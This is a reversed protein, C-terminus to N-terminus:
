SGAIIIDANLDAAQGVIYVSFVVSETTDGSTVSIHVQFAGTGDDDGSGTERLVYGGAESKYSVVRTPGDDSAGIITVVANTIINNGDATSKVVVKFSENSEFIYAGNQPNVPKSNPYQIEYTFSTVGPSQAEDVTISVSDDYLVQGDSHATAYVKFSAGTKTKESPIGSIWGNASMTLGAPLGVAYWDYDAKSMGAPIEIEENVYKGVSMAKNFTVEIKGDDASFVKVSLSNRDYDDITKDGVGDISITITPKFYVEISANDTSGVGTVQFNYIGVTDEKSITVKYKEDITDKTSIESDSVYVDVNGKNTSTFTGVYTYNDSTSLKMYWKVEYGYNVYNAENIGVYTTADTEGVAVSIDKNVAADTGDASVVAFGIVAMIVAMMAAIAKSNM